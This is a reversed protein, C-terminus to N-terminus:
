KGEISSFKEESMAIKPMPQRYIAYVIVANLMEHGLLKCADMREYWIRSSGQM